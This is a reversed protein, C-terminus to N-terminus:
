AGGLARGTASHSHSEVITSWVGSHAENIGEVTVALQPKTRNRAYVNAGRHMAALPVYPSRQPSKAQM